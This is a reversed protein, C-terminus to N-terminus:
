KNFKYGVGRISHFHKPEKPNDEFYKRLNLIFNDITRATPYIEYGWIEELITDRSVVENERDVLLKLLQVEKKSLVFTEGSEAIVEYTLFNFTKNGISILDPLVNKVTGVSSRRLLSQVRLLFEELNFPKTIYDDAGSKLGEVKEQNSGKATLMMIPVHTNELRINKCLTIGDIHPLMLDLIILDFKASKFYKYGQKGDVAQIVEYGEMELNLTIAELFHSEDEVLLIRSTSPNL